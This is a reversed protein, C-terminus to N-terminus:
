VICRLATGYPVRIMRVEYDYINIIHSVTDYYNIIHHISYSVYLVTFVLLLINTHIHIYTHIMYQVSYWCMEAAPHSSAGGAAAGVGVM